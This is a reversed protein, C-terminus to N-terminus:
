KSYTRYSAIAPSSCVSTVRVVMEGSARQEVVELAAVAGEQRARKCMSMQGAGSGTIHELVSTLLLYDITSNCGSALHFHLFICASHHTVGCLPIQFGYVLMKCKEFSMKLQM